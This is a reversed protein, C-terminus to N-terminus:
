RDNKQKNRFLKNRLLEKSSGDHFIQQKKQGGMKGNYDFNEVNTM